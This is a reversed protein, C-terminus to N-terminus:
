LCKPVLLQIAMKGNHHIDCNWYTLGQEVVLRHWQSLLIENEDSELQVEHISPAMEQRLRWKIKCGFEMDEQQGKAIYNVDQVCYDDSSVPQQSQKAETFTTSLKQPLAQVHEDSSKNTVTALNCRAPQFSSKLSTVADNRTKQLQPDDLEESNSSLLENSLEQPLAQVHEDSCKNTVTALNCRAPQFSSKLSTVADDRTKQLQPDDLEESNSSLLENSLEQPLAQVHEDSSKNTVTALNCRAPQFSSKLSTVADDRTKQLQPDDLEESNSSLSEDIVKVVKGDVVENRESAEMDLVAHVRRCLTSKKVSLPIISHGDV